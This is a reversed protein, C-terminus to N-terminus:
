LSGGGKDSFMSIIIIIIMILFLGFPVAMNVWGQVALYISMMATIFLAVVLAKITGAISGVAFVLLFVLVLIGNGFGPIVSVPYDMFFSGPGTVISGNSYNTPYAYPM